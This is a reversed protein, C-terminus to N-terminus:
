LSAGTALHAGPNLHVEPHAAAAEAPAQDLGATVLAQPWKAGQHCTYCTVAKVNAPLYEHNIKDVMAWMRHAIQNTPYYQLSIFDATNHCFLCNVGLSRAASYMSNVVYGVQKTSKYRYDLFQVPVINWSVGLRPAGRHCTVCGVAGNVAYNPYDHKVPAIWAQGVENSMIIMTRAIKKTPTDYAFNQVNHCYTCQVGLAGTFYNMQGLLAVYSYQKLVQVNYLKGGVYTHPVAAPQTTFDLPASQDVPGYGKVADPPLTGADETGLSTSLHPEEPASHGGPAWPGAHSTVQGPGTAARAKDLLPQALGSLALTCVIVIPGLVRKINM